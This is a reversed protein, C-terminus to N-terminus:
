AELAVPEKEKPKKEKTKDKVPSQETFEKDVVPEGSPVEPLQENIIDALEQEVAEEDEETLRGSLLANIENQKDISERTDELINEIDEINLAENVKKLAENGKKLGDVVQLEVQAFEIDHTLKELNDLQVDTKTLLQEQFRKKKLMLKAREKQGKNLLKKALEKDSNLTLEIRKQYQKLKDRQQKLQLVAKDHETVRSVQKKKGFIIGM